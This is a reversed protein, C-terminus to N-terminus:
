LVTESNVADAIGAYDPFFHDETYGFGKMLDILNEILEWDIIYVNVPVRNEVNTPFPHFTFVAKQREIRRDIAYPKLYSSHEFTMIQKEEPFKDHLLREDIIHYIFVKLENSFNKDGFVNRIAFFIATFINKSWDLLPTNVGFHQALSMRDPLLEPFDPNQSEARRCFERFGRLSKHFLYRRISDKEEELDKDRTLTRYCKPILSWNRIQGRFLGSTNHGLLPYATPFEFSTSSIVKSDRDPPRELFGPKFYEKQINLSVLTELTDIKKPESLEFYFNQNKESM